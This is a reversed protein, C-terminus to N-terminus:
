LFYQLDSKLKYGLLLTQRPQLLITSVITETESSIALERMAFKINDPSLEARAKLLHEKTARCLIQIALKESLCILTYRRM